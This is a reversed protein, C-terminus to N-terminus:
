NNRKQFITCDFGTMTWHCIDMTMVTFLYERKPKISIYLVQFQVKNAFTEKNAKATDETDPFFLKLINRIKAYYMILTACWNVMLAKLQNNYNNRCYDDCFKKIQSAEPAEGCSMCPKTDINM